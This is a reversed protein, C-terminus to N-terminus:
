ETKGDMYIISTVKYEFQLDEFDTSYLKIHNDMFQNIDIGLDEFIGNGNEPVEIGTFDCNTNMIDVGFLDKIKLEGQVGKIDKPTNNSVEFVFQVRSAYRGVNYDIDLREKGTM